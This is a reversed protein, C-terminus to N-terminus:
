RSSHSCLKKQRSLRGVCIHFLFCLLGPSYKSPSLGALFYLSPPSPSPLSSSCSAPWRVMPEGSPSCSMSRSTRYINKAFKVSGFFSSASPRGSRLTCYWMQFLPMPQRCLTPIVFSFSFCATSIMPSRNLKHLRCSYIGACTTASVSVLGNVYKVVLGSLCTASLMIHESM